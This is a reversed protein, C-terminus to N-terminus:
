TETAVTGSTITSGDIQKAEWEETHLAMRRDLLLTELIELKKAPAILEHDLIALCATQYQESKKM